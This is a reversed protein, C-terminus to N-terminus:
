RERSITVHGHFTRLVAFALEPMKIAVITTQKIM